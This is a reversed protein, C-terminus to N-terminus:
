TKKGYSRRSIRRCRAVSGPVIRSRAVVVYTECGSLIVNIAERGGMTTPNKKLINKDNNNNQM